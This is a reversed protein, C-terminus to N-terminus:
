HCMTALLYCMRKLFIWVWILRTVIFTVVIDVERSYSFSLFKNIKSLTCKIVKKFTIQQEKFMGCLLEQTGPIRNADPEM